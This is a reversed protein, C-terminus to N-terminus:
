KMNQMILYAVLLGLGPAALPRLWRLKTRPWLMTVIVTIVLGALAGVIMGATSM